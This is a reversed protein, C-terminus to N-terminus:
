KGGISVEQKVLEILKDMSLSFVIPSPNVKIGNLYLDALVPTLSREPLNPAVEFACTSVPLGAGKLDDREQDAMVECFIESGVKFAVHVPKEPSLKDYAWGQVVHNSSVDIHYQFRDRLRKNRGTLKNIIRVVM